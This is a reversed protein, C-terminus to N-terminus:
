LHGFPHKRSYRAITGAECDDLVSTWLLNRSSRSIGKVWRRMGEPKGYITAIRLVSGSCITHISRRHSRGDRTAAGWPNREERRGRRLSKSWTKIVFFRVSALSARAITAILNVNGTGRRRIHTFGGRGARCAGTHHMPYCARQFRHLVVSRGCRGM